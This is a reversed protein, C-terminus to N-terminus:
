STMRDQDSVGEDCPGDTRASDECVSDARVFDAGVSDARASGDVVDDDFAVRMDDFPVEASTDPGRCM